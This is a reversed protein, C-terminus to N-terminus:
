NQMSETWAKALVREPLNPTNSNILMVADVDDPFHYISSLFAGERSGPRSGEDWFWGGDKEWGPESIDWGLLDNYMMKTTTQSLVKHDRLGRLFRGLDAVSAYWGAAGAKADMNWDFPYGPRTSDPKGYGCTPAHAEFHTEM